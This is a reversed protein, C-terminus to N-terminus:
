AKKKSKVIKACSTCMAKHGCRYIVTNRENTYCITCLNDDTANYEEEKQDEEEEIKQYKKVKFINNKSKV